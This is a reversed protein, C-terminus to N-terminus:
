LCPYSKFNCCITVLTVLIRDKAEIIIMSWATREWGDKGLINYILGKIGLYRSRLEGLRHQVFHIFLTPLISVEVFKLESLLDGALKEMTYWM